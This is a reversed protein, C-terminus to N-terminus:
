TAVPLAFCKFLFRTSGLQVRDDDRLVQEAIRVDNVLSGNTSNLDRLVYQGATFVVEAHRGSLFRDDAIVIDCGPTSGFRLTGGTLRFDRGRQDGSVAVLWAVLDQRGVPGVLVATTDLDVPTMAGPPDVPLEPRAAPAAPRPSAYAPPPAAAPPAAASPMVPRPGIVTIDDGGGPTGLGPPSVPERRIPAPAPRPPPVHEIRRVAEPARPYAPPGAAPPWAPPAAAPPPAYPAPPPVYPAAPPPEPARTQRGSAPFGPEDDAPIFDGSGDGGAECYPCSDWLPDLVHNNPCRRVKGGRKNFVM